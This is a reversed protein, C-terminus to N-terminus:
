NVAHTSSPRPLASTQDPMPAGDSPPVADRPLAPSPDFAAGAGDIDPARVELVDGPRLQTSAAATFTRTGEGDRGPRTVVLTVARETDDGALSAITSGFRAAEAFLSQATTLQVEIRGLETRADQLETAITVRRDGRLDVEDREAENLQQQATLVATELELLRAEADALQRESSNARSTQALGRDVLGRMTRVEERTAAVVKQRLRSEKRMTEIRANVLSKLEALSQLAAEHEERRARLVEHEVDLFAGALDDQTLEQPADITDAGAREAELRAIRALTRLRELKLLRHDGLARMADRDTRSFISQSRRVGGAIAIAQIVTLGPRYAFAGPSEVAGVVFLPAHEAITLSVFLDDVIGLRSQLADTMTESLASVSQGAAEIRGIVPLAVSGNAEVSFEGTMFPVPELTRTETSWAAVGLSLKDLPHVLDGDQALAPGDLLAPGAAIFAALALAAAPARHM